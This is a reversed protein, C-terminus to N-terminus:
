NASEGEVGWSSLVPASYRQRGEGQERGGDTIPFSNCSHIYLLWALAFFSLISVVSVYKSTEATTAQPVNTCVFYETADVFM